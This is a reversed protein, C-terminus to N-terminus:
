QATGTGEAQSDTTETEEVAEEETEEPEEEVPAVYMMTNGESLVRKAKGPALQKVTVLADETLKVKKVQLVHSSIFKTNQWEDNIYIKSATTFNRGFVYVKNEDPLPIM